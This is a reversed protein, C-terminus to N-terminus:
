DKRELWNPIILKLEGHRSSLFLEPTPMISSILSSAGEFSKLSYLGFQETSFINISIFKCDSFHTRDHEQLGLEVTRFVM